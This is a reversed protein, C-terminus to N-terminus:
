PSRRNIRSRYRIPGHIFHRRLRRRLDLILLRDIRSVSMLMFSSDDVTGITAGASMRASRREERRMLGFQCVTLTADVSPLFM